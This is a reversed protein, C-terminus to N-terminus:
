VSNSLHKPKNFKEYYARFWLSIAQLSLGRIPQGIDQPLHKGVNPIEAHRIMTYAGERFIARYRERFSGIMNLFLFYKQFDEETMWGQQIPRGDYYLGEQKEVWTAAAVVYAETEPDVQGDKLRDFWVSAVLDHGKLRSPDDNWRQLAQTRQQECEAIFQQHERKSRRDLATVLYVLAVLGALLVGSFLLQFMLDSISEISDM